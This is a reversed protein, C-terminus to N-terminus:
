QNSSENIKIPNVHIVTLYIEDIKKTIEKELKDAIEHSEFTTLNGDM